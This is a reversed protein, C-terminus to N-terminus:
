DPLAGAHSSISWSPSETSTALHDALREALAISTLTPNVYGSTPFVSPGAAFLNPVDHLRGDPTVVGDNPHQSMRTTGMSHAMSSPLGLEHMSRARPVYAGLGSQEVHAALRQQVALVSSRVQDGIHWEVRPLPSGYADTDYSLSVRSDILPPQECQMVVEFRRFRRRLLSHRRIPVPFISLAVRVSELEECLAASAALHGSATRTGIDALDFFAMADAEASTVDIHGVPFLPHEMLYRGVKGHQNGIGGNGRDSMLLLRANEIAGCALVFREAKVSGTGAKTRCRVSSITGTKDDRILEVVTADTEIRCRPSAKLENVLRWRFADSPRFGFWRADFDAWFNESRAGSRVASSAPDSGVAFHHQARHLWPELETFDLPWGSDTVWPREVFDEADVTGHRLGLHADAKEGATNAVWANAHGSLRRVREDIPSGPVSAAPPQHPEDADLTARTELLTVSIGRRVLEAAVVLGATGGGIVCVDNPDRLDITSDDSTLDTTSEIVM